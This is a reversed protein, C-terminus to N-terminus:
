AAILRALHRVPADAALGALAAELADRRAAFPTGALCDALKARRDEATLPDALMGRQRLRTRTWRRGDKLTVVVEAPEGTVEAAAIAAGPGHVRMSVRPMLDDLAPRGIADARFDSLSLRGGGVLAAAIGYPMSFRAQLPDVPRPHMLNRLTLERVVTEISEVDAAEFGHERRLDLVADLAAHVSACNPHIKPKLGHELIAPAAAGAAVARLRAIGAAFDPEPGAGRFHDTFSWPGALMEPAATVGSAALLAATLGNRAAFGAHLPKAMTGFQAKSGGAMSTSLGIARGAADADLGALRACAAAVGITGITSTSHWGREYHAITLADGVFTMAELGALYADLLAAGGADRSEALALLAPVLAASAHGASPGFNDDFDLAHAAVGNVLAADPVALGDGRGVVTAPGTSWGRVAAEVRVTAPDDHGALLCATLDAVAEAAAAVAPAGFPPADAVFAALARTPTM